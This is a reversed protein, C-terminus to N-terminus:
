RFRPTAKANTMHVAQQMTDPFRAGRTEPTVLVLLGAVLAMGGFLIFPLRDGFAPTLPAIINGIRGMMSSFAFLRHRYKTPYLEITYVYMATAVSAISCKGILYLALSAGYLDTPVFLYAFQCASCIWFSMMLTPKRGIVNMLLFALWFGPIEIATVVIFNIYSNGAINVSNITLGYYVLTCTIWWIPSVLCRLLIPKHRFVLVILWPEESITEKESMQKEREANKKLALMSQESLQKGNVRAMRKLIQQAEEHRDKSLYWRVSEPMIWFFSIALLQPLYIALTLLRWDPVAWAVLGCVVGGTAFITSMAASVAVRYKPGVIETMLIYACSYGGSGFVSELFQSAIFGIYTNAFYRISGIWATNVATLALATRRGWYDSVLGVLPLAVLMGVTRLSGILSRRWEDCALEFDYVVTNTHEYVYQDCPVVTQQDFLDAPCSDTVNAIGTSNYRQCNDLRGDTGPVATGLWSPSFQEPGASECEPILCRTPIRGATFIYESSAVSICLIALALVALQRLQYWGFQGVEDILITDLSVECREDLTEPVPADSITKEKNKKM